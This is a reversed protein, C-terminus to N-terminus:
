YKKLFEVQKSTPSQIFGNVTSAWTDDKGFRINTVYRHGKLVQNGAHFGNADLIFVTGKDGEVFILNNKLDDIDQRHSKLVFSTSGNFKTVKNWYIFLALYRFDDADRHLRHVYHKKNIESNYWTM